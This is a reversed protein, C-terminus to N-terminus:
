DRKKRVAVTTVLVGAAAAGLVSWLLINNNDGTGAAGSRGPDSNKGSM